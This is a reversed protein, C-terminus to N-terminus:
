RERIAEVFEWTMRSSPTNIFRIMREFTRSQFLVEGYANRLVWPLDNFVQKGTKQSYTVEKSITYRM